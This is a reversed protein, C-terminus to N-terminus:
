KWVSYILHGQVVDINKDKPFRDMEFRAFEKLRDWLKTDTARATVCCVRRDAPHVILYM